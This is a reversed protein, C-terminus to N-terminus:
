TSRRPTRATTIATAPPMAPTTEPRTACGRSRTRMLPLNPRWLRSTSARRGPSLAYAPAELGGRAEFRELRDREARTEALDVLGVDLEELMANLQPFRRKKM